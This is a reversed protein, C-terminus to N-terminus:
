GASKEYETMALLTNAKDIQRRLMANHQSAAAAARKHQAVEAQLKELDTQPGAAPAQAHLVSEGIPVMLHAPFEEGIMDFAGCFDQATQEPVFWHSGDTLTFVWAVTAEDAQIDTINM